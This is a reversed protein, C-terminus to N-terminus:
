IYHKLRPWLEALPPTLGRCVYVPLDDEFPMCLGDCRVTGERRLDPCVARNDAEDGGLIILVEGTYSGPGWLFYNNHGSVAHPLGAARGLVDIAGAEGYNQAYIGAKAREEPPLSRYVRAVEDVLGQWGHMDAYHQPLKGMEHREGSSAEIGLWKQYRMFTEVPLVPLTMPAIVAGGLLLLLLLAGALAPRLGPRPLRRLGAEIAVGGAAFLVPYIPSLYYPKSSQTMLAALIALVAWGFLRYRRGACYWVLGAIGVPVSLPHMLLIQESLFQLPSLHVNKLRQANAMFELTPWGHSMQWLLHPLFLLGAILGGLWIWPRAFHRREPTLLVGAFVGFGFLLMSHKNLLGLGAVLGFLLWLRSEGTNVTRVVISAGLLWFLVEFANMSFFHFLFLYVPSILTCLSAVAQATRGGGLERAFRGALFVVLAGVLIPMWRLAPLSEGFLERSLRAMWPAFPPH